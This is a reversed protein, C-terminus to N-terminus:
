CARGWTGAVQDVPVSVALLGLFGAPMAVRLQGNVERVRLAVPKGSPPVLTYIGPATPTM